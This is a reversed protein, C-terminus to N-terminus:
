SVKGFTPPGAGFPVLRGWTGPRKRLLYAGALLVAFVNAVIISWFPLLPRIPTTLLGVAVITAFFGAVIVLLVLGSRSPHREAYTVLGTVILGIVLSISLHIGSYLAIAATDIQIPVGLVSTDRLGKFVSKGLLDVTYLPGRAALLDFIAYFVAVSAFGILGVILGQKITRGEQAV